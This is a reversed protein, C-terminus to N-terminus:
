GPCVRPMTPSDPQPLLWVTSEMMRRIGEGGPLITPPCTSNSPWSRSVIRSSCIRRMRPRFIAMIKWSGIVERLGTSVTLLCIPSARCSCMPIFAPCARVRAISSSSRTPM